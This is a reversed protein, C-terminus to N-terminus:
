RWSLECEVDLGVRDLEVQFWWRKVWGRRVELGSVGWSWSVCTLVWDVNWM